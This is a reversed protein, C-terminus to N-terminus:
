KHKILATKGLDLDTHVFLHEWKLLLERAQKQKPKPWEKLGQLDLAELVWEKQPKQNSEKSTSTPHVVLPVQNTSAVQEVVTKAPIEVTCISLNCLYIPVWSSGLHLEGYTVMPVVASPLQPGAMLETLMHVWMCHGKVSSNAHVSVTSFPPITVKQTTHVPGRVDDLCFKRVELPDDSLSSHSVEKELRTKNSSTHPLQLSGSMVPGLHAQRRTITAKTLEGKTMLSMVRDIIKSGVMVPVTKSYTTTPIVLLLADENYNRIGPIQLNVEVFGLYPMASGGTGELELLWGFPQIQLALDKCFQSSVSSIQAGLDILSTMELRDVIVPGKNSYGVLHTIPDPNLFTVPHGRTM